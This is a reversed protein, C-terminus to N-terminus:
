WIDIGKKFLNVVLYIYLMRHAIALSHRWSDCYRACFIVWGTHKKSDTNTDYWSPHHACTKHAFLTKHTQHFQIAVLTTNRWILKEGQEIWTEGSVTGQRSHSLTSVMFSFLSRCLMFKFTECKGKLWREANNMAHTETTCGNKTKLWTMFPYLFRPFTYLKRENGRCNSTHKIKHGFLSEFSISTPLLFPEDSDNRLNGRNRAFSSQNRDHLKIIKEHLSNKAYESAEADM